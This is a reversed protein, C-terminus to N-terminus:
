ENVRGRDILNLILAPYDEEIVEGYCEDWAEILDEITINLQRWDMSAGTYNNM